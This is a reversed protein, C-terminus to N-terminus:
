GNDSKFTERRKLLTERFAQYEPRSEIEEQIAKSRESQQRLYEDVTTQDNLYYAIVAYIQSLDLVPYQSAIEEATYGETFAYIVTDLRVRTNEIRITGEADKTLPVDLTQSLLM